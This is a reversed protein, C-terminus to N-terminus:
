VRDCMVDYKNHCLLSSASVELAPTILTLLKAFGLFEIILINRVIWNLFHITGSQPKIEAETQFDSTSGPFDVSFASSM